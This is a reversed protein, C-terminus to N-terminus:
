LLGYDYVEELGYDADPLRHNNLMVALSRFRHLNKLVQPTLIDKLTPSYIAIDVDGNKVKYIRNQGVGLLKRIAMIGVGCRLYYAIHLDTNEFNQRVMPYHYFSHLRELLEEVPVDTGFSLNLATLRMAERHPNPLARCLHELWQVMGIIELEHFRNKELM